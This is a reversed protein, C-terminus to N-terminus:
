IDIKLNALANLFIHDSGSGSSYFARAAVMAGNDTCLEPAPYFIKLGKELCRLRANERLYRNAAVGGAICLVKRGRNACASLAKDLLVSCVSRQFSACVDEKRFNIKKIEAMRLFNVVATKPGSFSFDYENDNFSAHPFNYAYESGSRSMEDIVPGGPYGIGMARAVKDFAEGAADDRTSGLVTIDNHGALDVLHTHGGSVILCIFPPELEKHQLFNAYIHAQLHNVPILPKKMYYALAKAYSVGVLLAGILGPGYTVAFRDIQGINLRARVLAERFVFDIKEAHMRSAAEPVVGGYQRHFNIQSCIVDSLVETRNRVIAVSTEDCSTEIGCIVTDSSV